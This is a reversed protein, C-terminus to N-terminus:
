RLNVEFINLNLDGQRRYDFRDVGQIALFIGLGGIPRQELPKALDEADPMHTTRPDFASGHDELTIRLTDKGLEGYISITKEAGADAYGYSIINTAIEDVALELKYARAEDIGARAAAERVFRRLAALSDLVAPVSLREM